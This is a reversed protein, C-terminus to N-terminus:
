AIAVNTSNRLKTNLEVIEHNARVVDDGVEPPRSECPRLRGNDIGVPRWHDPRRYCLLVAAARPGQRVPRRDVEGVAHGVRGLDSSRRTRVSYADGGDDT